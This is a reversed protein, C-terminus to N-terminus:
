QSSGATSVPKLGEIFLFAIPGLFAWTAFWLIETIPMFSFIRLDWRSGALLWYKDWFSPSFAGVFLIYLITALSTVFVASVIAVRIFDKRQYIILGSLSWFIIYSVLISNVGLWLNLTIFSLLTVVSFVYLYPKQAPLSKKYTSGTVVAYSLITIISIAFGAIFEEISIRGVGILTPPRWYDRFYFLEIVIASFGGLVGYKIVVKSLEKRLYLLILAIILLAVSVALYM